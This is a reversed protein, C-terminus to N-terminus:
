HQGFRRCKLTAKVVSGNRYIAQKTPTLLVSNSGWSWKQGDKGNSLDAKIRQKGFKLYSSAGRDVLLIVTQRQGEHACSWMSKSDAAVNTPAMLVLLAVSAATLWLLWWSVKLPAYHFRNEQARKSNM